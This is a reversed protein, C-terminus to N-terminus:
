LNLPWEFSLLCSLSRSIRLVSESSPNSFDRSEFYFEVKVTDLFSISLHETVSFPYWCAHNQLILSIYMYFASSSLGPLCSSINFFRVSM